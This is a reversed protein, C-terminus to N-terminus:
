LHRGCHPWPQRGREAYLQRAAADQVEPPATDPPRGAWEPRGARTVAGDWTAQDFQYAGRYRGSRSVARPNGGSECRALAAFDPAGAARTM